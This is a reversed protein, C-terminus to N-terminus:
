FKKVRLKLERWLHEIPNLDPNLSPWDLVKVGNDKFWAKALNSTHKPDSDQQFTFRRGLGLNIASPKAHNELIDVYQVSNMTGKFLVLHGPGDRSMSGWNGLAYNIRRRAEYDEQPVIEKENSKERREAELCNETRKDSPGFLCIKM